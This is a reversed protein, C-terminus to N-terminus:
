CIWKAAAKIKETETAFREKTGKNECETESRELQLSWCFSDKGLWFILHTKLFVVVKFQVFGTSRM